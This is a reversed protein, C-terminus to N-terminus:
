NLSNYQLYILLSSDVYERNRKVIYKRLYNRYHLRVGNIVRDFDEAYNMRYLESNKFLTILKKKTFDRQEAKTLQTYKESSKMVNFLDQLKIGVNEDEVKEFNDNFWELSWDSFTLYELTRRRISEPIFLKGKTSKYEELLMKMMVFKYQNKFEATKYFPNALYIHRAPDVENPFITWTCPFNLDIIREIDAKQIDDQFGPKNNCELILTAAIKTKTNKSYLTRANCETGGTLEKYRSNNLKAKKPIEGCVVIRKKHMNAIEPCPGEKQEKCLLIAPFYYGYGPKNNGLTELLLSDLLGKGNRGEGNFVILNEYPNGVLGSAYVSLLCKRNEENPQIQSILSNLNNYEVDTSKIVEEYSYGVSMTM